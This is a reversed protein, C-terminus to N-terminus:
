IYGCDTGELSLIDPSSDYQSSNMVMEIAYMSDVMGEMLACKDKQDYTESERADVLHSELKERILTTVLQHDRFASHSGSEWQLTLWRDFWSQLLWHTDDQDTYEMFYEDVGHVADELQKWM